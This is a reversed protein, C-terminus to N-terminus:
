HEAQEEAKIRELYAAANEGPEAEHCDAIVQRAVSAAIEESDYPLGDWLSAGDIEDFTQVYLKGQDDHALRVEVDIAAPHGATMQEPTYTFVYSGITAWESEIINPEPVDKPDDSCEELSSEPVFLGKQPGYDSEIPDDLGVIYWWVPVMFQIGLVTGSFVQGDGIVNVPEDVEFKPDAM